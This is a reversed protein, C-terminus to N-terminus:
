NQRAALMRPSRGPIQNPICVTPDTPIQKELRLASRTILAGQLLTIHLARSTGITPRGSGASPDYIHINSPFHSASRSAILLLPRLISDFSPREVMSWRNSDYAASHNACVVPAPTSTTILEVAPM